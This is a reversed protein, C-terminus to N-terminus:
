RKYGNACHLHWYAPDSERDIDCFSIKMPEDQRVALIPLLFLQYASEDAVLCWVGNRRLTSSEGFTEASSGHCWDHM